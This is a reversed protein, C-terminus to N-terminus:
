TGILSVASLGLASTIGVGVIKNPGGMWGRIFDLTSATLTAVTTWTLGDASRYVVDTNYHYFYGNHFFLKPSASTSPSSGAPLTGTTWSGTAGTASTACTTSGSITALFIGNGYVIDSWRQSSPMTATSWNGAVTPDTVCRFISTTAITSSSTALYVTATDNVALGLGSGFDVTTWTTGNASYSSGGTGTSVIARTGDWISRFATSPAPSGSYTWTTGDTTTFLGGDGIVYLLPTPSPIYGSVMSTGVPFSASVIGTSWTTGDLSYAYQNTPSGTSDTGFAFYNGNALPAYTATLYTLNPVTGNSWTDIQTKAGAGLMFTLAGSM